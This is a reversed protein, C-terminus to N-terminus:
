RPPGPSEPPPPRPVIFALEAFLVRAGIQNYQIPAMINNIAKNMPSMNTEQRLAALNLLVHLHHPLKRLLRSRHKIRCWYVFNSYCECM